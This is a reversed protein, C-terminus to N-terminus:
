AVMLCSQTRFIKFICAVKFVLGQGYNSIFFTYESLAKVSSKQAAIIFRAKVPNNHLKWLWYISPLRKNDESLCIEFWLFIEKLCFTMM